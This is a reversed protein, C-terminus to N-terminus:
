FYVCKNSVLVQHHFKIFGLLIVPATTESVSQSGHLCIKHRHQGPGAANQPYRPRACAYAGPSSSERLRRMRVSKEVERETHLYWWDGREGEKCGGEREVKGRELEGERGSGRM